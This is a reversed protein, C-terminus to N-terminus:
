VSGCSRPPRSDEGLFLDLRENGGVAILDQVPNRANSSSSSLGLQELARLDQDRTNLALDRILLPLLKECVLKNGRDM